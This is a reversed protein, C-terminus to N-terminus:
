VLTELCPSTRNRRIRTAQTSINYDISGYYLLSAHAETAFTRKPKPPPESLSRKYVRSKGPRTVDPQSNSREYTRHHDLHNPPDPNNIVLLSTTEQSWPQYQTPYSYECWLYNKSSEYSLEDSYTSSHFTVQKGQKEPKVITEGAKSHSTNTMTYEARYVEVMKEVVRVRHIGSEKKKECTDGNEVKKAESDCIDHFLSEDKRNIKRCIIPNPPITEVDVSKCELTDNNAENTPLVQSDKQHPQKINNCCNFFLDSVSCM